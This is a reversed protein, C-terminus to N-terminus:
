QGRTLVEGLAQAFLKSRSVRLKRALATVRGLLGREISVSIRKFGQGIRPRGRKRKLHKWQELEAKTLPRAKELAFSEDYEKTAAALEKSTMEWYPKKKMPKEPSSVM